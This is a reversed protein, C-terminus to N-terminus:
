SLDRSLASCITYARSLCFQPRSLVVIAQQSLLALELLNEKWPEIPYWLKKNHRKEHIGVKCRNRSRLFDVHSAQASGLTASDKPGGPCRQLGSRCRATRRRRRAPGPGASGVAPAAAGTSRGLPSLQSPRETRSPISRSARLDLKRVGLLSCALFASSVSGHERLSLPLIVHSSLVGVPNREFLRRQKSAWCQCAGVSRAAGRGECCRRRPAGLM